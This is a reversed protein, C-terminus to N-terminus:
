VGDNVDDPSLHDNESLSSVALRGDPQVHITTIGCNPVPVRRWLKDTEIRALFYCIINGHCVILHTDSAESPRFLRAFAAEPGPATSVPENTSQNAPLPIQSQNCECLDDSHYIPVGSLKEAILEATEKARRMTSSHILVPPDAMDALRMGTLEAQRKGKESLESEPFHGSRFQDSFEGHRVLLLRRM